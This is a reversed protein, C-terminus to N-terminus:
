KRIIFIELSFTEEKDLRLISILKKKSERELRGSKSESTRRERELITMFERALKANIKMMM